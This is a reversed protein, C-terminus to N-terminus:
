STKIEQLSREVIEPLLSYGTWGIAKLVMIIEETTRAKYDILAVLLSRRYAWHIKMKGGVIGDVARRVTDGTGADPYNHRDHACRHCGAYHHTDDRGM